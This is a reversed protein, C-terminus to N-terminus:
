KTSTVRIVTTIWQNGDNTVESEYVRDANGSSAGVVDLYKGNSDEGAGVVALWHCGKGCGDSGSSLVDGHGYIIYCGGSNLNGDGTITDYVESLSYKEGTRLDTLSIDFTSAVVSYYSPNQGVKPINGTWKNDSTSWTVSPNDGGYGANALDKISYVQKNLASAANSCAFMFCAVKSVPKGSGGSKCNAVGTWYDGQRECLYDKGDITTIKYGKGIQYYVASGDTPNISALASEWEAQSLTSVAASTTTTTTSTSSGDGTTQTTGGQAMTTADEQSYGAAVALSTDGTIYTYTELFQLSKSFGSNSDTGTVADYQQIMDESGFSGIVMYLCIALVYFIFVKLAVQLIHLKGKM